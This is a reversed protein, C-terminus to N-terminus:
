DHEVRCRDLERLALPSLVGENDAPPEEALLPHAVGKIAAVGLALVAVGNVRAVVAALRVVIQPDDHRIPERLNGRQRLAKAFPGRAFRLAGRLRPRSPRWQRNMWWWRRDAAPWSSNTFSRCSRFSSS